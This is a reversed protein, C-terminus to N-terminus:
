FGSETPLDGLRHPADAVIYAMVAIAAAARSMEAPEIREVTDAPTHHIVFYRGADGDLSMAPINAAQVSPGIDAGGGNPGVADM